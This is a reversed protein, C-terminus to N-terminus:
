ILGTFTRPSHKCICFYLCSGDAMLFPSAPKMFAAALAQTMFNAFVLDCINAIVDFKPMWQIDYIVFQTKSWLLCVPRSTTSERSCNSVAYKGDRRCQLVLFCRM